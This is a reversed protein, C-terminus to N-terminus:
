ETVSERVMEIRRFVEFYGAQKFGPWAEDDPINEVVADQSSHLRHLLELLGATTRVPDGRLVEVCIRKLQLTTAQFSVWGRAGDSFEVIIGSLHALEHQLYGTEDDPSFNALRRVNHMTEVSSLWNMREKRRCHLELVEDHQLYRIQRADKVISMNRATRPPRRAVILERTERFQFKHFLEHAPGNGHIVELWVDPLKCNQAEILLADLIAGGVGQRRGDPLVGLRTIWGMGKRKGLMGLGVINDGEIAVKSRDLAVDYLLIYEQLRGPNMPMPILYDTRTQNYARTLEEITFDSASLLIM